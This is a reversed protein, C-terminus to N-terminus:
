DSKKTTYTQTLHDCTMDKQVKYINRIDIRRLGTSRLTQARRYATENVGGGSSTDRVADLTEKNSILGWSEEDM